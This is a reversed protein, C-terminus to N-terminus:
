VMDFEVIGHRAEANADSSARVTLVAGEDSLVLEARLVAPDIEAIDGFHVKLVGALLGLNDEALDDVPFIRRGFFGIGAGFGRSRDVGDNGSVQFGSM